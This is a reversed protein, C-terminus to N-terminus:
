RPAEAAEARVRVSAGSVDAPADGLLVLFDVRQGPAIARPIRGQAEAALADLAARDIAGHVEEPTPLAGALAEGRALVQGDRVLEAAVRVAAVPAQARSLVEGRVFLVTGGGAQEYVGSRVAAVEIAGAPGPARGLARLLNSPRFVAPGLPVDGRWVVRFALAIVILAILALAGVAASRLRQAPTPPPALQTAEAEAPPAGRPPHPAPAPPAEPPPAAAPPAPEPAAPTRETALSLSEEGVPAMGLPAMGLPGDEFAAGGFAGPELGGSLFVDAPDAFSPAPIPASREELALDAGLALNAALELDQQPAPAAPVPASPEAGHGLLQALDTVPLSQGAPPAGPLELEGFPDGLAQRAFPDGEAPEPEEAPGGEGAFGGSLEGSAALAFPDEPSPPPDGFADLGAAAFPDPPPRPEPAARPGPAFAPAAAPGPFAAFPDASPPPRPPGPTLELDLPAPPAPPPAPARAPAPVPAPAPAPAQPERRVVFVTQCRSCRVKAGRPGVKEDAVRFRAQCSSCIVIM